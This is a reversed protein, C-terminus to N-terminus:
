KKPILKDSVIPVMDRIFSAMLESAKLGEAELVPTFKECVAKLATAITLKENSKQNLLVYGNSWAIDVLTLDFHEQGISEIVGHVMANRLEVMGELAQHFAERAKIQENKTIFGRKVSAGLISNLIERFRYFEHFFTRVLLEYRTKPSGGYLVFREPLVALDDLILNLNEIVDNCERIWALFFYAGSMEPDLAGIKLSGKEILGSVGDRKM